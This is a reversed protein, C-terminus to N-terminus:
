LLAEPCSWVGDADSDSSDDAAADQAARSHSSQGTSGSPLM